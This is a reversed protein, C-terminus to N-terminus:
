GGYVGGGRFTEEIQGELDDVTFGAKEMSEEYVEMFKRLGTEPGYTRDDSQM